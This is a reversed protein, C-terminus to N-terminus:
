VQTQWSLETVRWAQQSPAGAQEEDESGAAAAQGSSSGAAGAQERNSGEATAAPAPPVLPEGCAYSGAEQLCLMQQKQVGEPPM